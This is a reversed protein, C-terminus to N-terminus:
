KAIKIYLYTNIHYVMYKDALQRLRIDTDVTITSIQNIRSDLEEFALM